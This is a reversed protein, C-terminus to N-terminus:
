KVHVLNYTNWLDIKSYIIAQKLQELLSPILALLYRNKMTLKNLDHNDVCMQLVGDKRKVFLIEAEVFSESHWIFNQAINEDIYEKLAM